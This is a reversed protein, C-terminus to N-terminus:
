SPSCSAFIISYSACHDFIILLTFMICIHHSSCRPVSLEIEPPWWKRLLSNAAVFLLMKMLMVICLFTDGSSLCIKMPGLKKGPTLYALSKLHNMLEVVKYAPGFISWEVRGGLHGGYIDGVCVWIGGVVGLPGRIYGM